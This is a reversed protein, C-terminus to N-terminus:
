GLSDLYGEPDKLFKYANSKKISEKIAEFDPKLLKGHRDMFMWNNLTGLEIM